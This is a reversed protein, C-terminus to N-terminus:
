DMKQWEYILNLAQQPTLQDLHIARLRSLIPHEKVILQPKIKVFHGSTEELMKLFFVM